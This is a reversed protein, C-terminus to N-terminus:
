NQGSGRGYRWTEQKSFLQKTQRKKKKVKRKVYIEKEQGLNLNPM